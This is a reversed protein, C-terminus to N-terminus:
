MCLYLDTEEGVLRLSYSLSHEKAKAFGGTESISFQEINVENEGLYFKM